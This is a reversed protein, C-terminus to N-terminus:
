AARQLMPRAQDHAAEDLADRHFERLFECAAKLAINGGLPKFAVEFAYRIDMGTIAYDLYPGAGVDPEAPSVEGITFYPRLTCREDPAPIEGDDMRFRIDGREISFIAPIEITM